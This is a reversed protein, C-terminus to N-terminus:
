RGEIEREGKVTRDARGQGPHSTADHFREGKLRLEDVFAGFEAPSMERALGPMLGKLLTLRDKHSLADAENVIRRLAEHDIQGTERSTTM